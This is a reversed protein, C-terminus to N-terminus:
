VVIKKTYRLMSSSIQLIYEGHKLFNLDIKQLSDQVLYEYYLSGNIGLIKVTAPLNKVWQLHLLM